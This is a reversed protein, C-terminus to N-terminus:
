FVHTTNPTYFIYLGLISDRQEITAFSHTVGDFEYHVNCESQLTLMPLYAMAVAPDGEASQSNKAYIYLSHCGHLKNEGEGGNHRRKRNIM